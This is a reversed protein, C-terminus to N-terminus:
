LTNIKQEVLTSLTYIYEQTLDIFNYIFRDDWIVIDGSDKDVNVQKTEILWKFMPLDSIITTPTKKRIRSGNHAILNRLSQYNAIRDSIAEVKRIDIEAAVWLFYESKKIYNDEDIKDISLRPKAVKAYYSCMWSIESEFLGYANLLLPNYFHKVFVNEHEYLADSLAIQDLKENSHDEIMIAHTARADIRRNIYQSIENVYKKLEGVKDKFNERQTVLLPTAKLKSRDIAM